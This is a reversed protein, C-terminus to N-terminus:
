ENDENKAVEATDQTETDAETNETESVEEVVDDAEVDEEVFEGRGIEALRAILKQYMLENVLNSRMQPTDFLQRLSQAQEGFQSLVENVRVDIDSEEVTIKENVLLEGLVLSRELQEVARDRNQEALTERSTGTVKTYDELTMGQQRLNQDLDNLLDEVQDSVMM